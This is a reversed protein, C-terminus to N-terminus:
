VTKKERLAALAATSKAILENYITQSSEYQEPTIKDDELQALLSEVKDSFTVIQDEYLKTLEEKAQTQAEGVSYKVEYIYLYQYIEQNQFFSESKYSDCVVTAFLRLGNGLPQSKYSSNFSVSSSSGFSEVLGGLVEFCKGAVYVELDGLEAISKGMDIKKVTTGDPVASGGGFVAKSIADIIKKVNAMSWESSQMFDSNRGSIFDTKDYDNDKYYADIKGQMDAGYKQAKAELEAEIKNIYARYEDEKNEMQQISPSHGM